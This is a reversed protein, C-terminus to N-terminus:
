CGSTSSTDGSAPSTTGAGDTPQDAVNANAAPDATGTASASPADTPAGTPTATDSAAVRAGAATQASPGGTPVDSSAAGTTPVCSTPSDTSPSGTDTSPAATSPVDSTPTDSSPASPTPTGTTPVATTPPASSSSNGSSSAGSPTGSSSTPHPTPTKTPGGSPGPKGPPGAALPPGPDAPPPVPAGGPGQTPVPPIDVPAAPIILGPDGSAYTHELALVSALYAASHNYTLVARTQGATTSLDGGAVCLYHAAAAAADFINFPDIIGDGNGDRGYVAWTSPIFQMPGVARDYVPDGDITGNDTDSVVETGNGDLPIGIIPKSSTGDARLVAGGYRGHDSEVRGIGALLPWPLHCGPDAANEANAAQQYAELATVPIGDAALPSALDAGSPDAYVLTPILGPGTVVQTPTATPDGPQAPMTLDNQNQIEAAPEAGGAGDALLASGTPANSGVIAGQLTPRTAAVATIAAAAVVLATVHTRPQRVSVHV